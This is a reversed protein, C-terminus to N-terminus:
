CVMQQFSQQKGRQFSQRQKQVKFATPPHIFDTPAIILFHYSGKLGLSTLNITLFENRVEYLVGCKVMLFILQHQALFYDGKASLIM